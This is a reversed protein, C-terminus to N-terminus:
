QMRDSAALAEAHIRLVEGRPLVLLGRNAGANELAIAMLKEILKPLQIESSLAQSSKIVSSIDLQQFPSSASGPPASRHANLGPYLRELQKVKADAGWKAYAMASERLHAYASTALTRQLYFRGALEHALAVNHIFGS